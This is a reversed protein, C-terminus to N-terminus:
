ARRGAVALMRQQLDASPDVDLPAGFVQSRQPEPFSEIGDIAPQLNEHPMTEDAGIARALDWSHILMDNTAIALMQQKAIEGFAPHDISGDTSGPVTLAAAMIDRAEAWTADDAADGGFIRGFNVQTATAHAILEAVDFESCPTPLSMHDATVLRHRAEFAHAASTWLAIQDTTM